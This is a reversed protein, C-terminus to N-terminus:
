VEEFYFRLMARAERDIEDRLKGDSVIKSLVDLARRHEPGEPLRLNLLNEAYEKAHNGVIPDPM